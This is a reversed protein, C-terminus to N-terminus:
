LYNPLPRLDHSEIFHPSNEIAKFFSTALEMNTILSCSREVATKRIFAGRTLETRADSKPINIIFDIKGSVIAQAVESKRIDVGAGKETAKWKLIKADFGHSQLYRGTGETAYIPIGLKKLILASGLFRLKDKEKGSSVLVGKKPVRIHSARLALLLAQDFNPALAGVEGTSAMEVGLRPDWGGLRQFSFMAAKVGVHPLEDESFRSFRPTHGLMVDTALKALNLGIVKSVFPFSRSARANCEIVKLHNDKALFQINFPGNLNLGKAIRAAAEKVQRVTEVYLKQAPVVMTADGSHVGANEIHEGVVATLIEGKQAVGDLEIERANEIFESVVVPADKSATVARSLCGDLTVEDYAVQMAAGSLVYSPRVLVPFGIESVFRTLQDKSTAAMWRPQDVKISDLLASFQKRDEAGDITAISHGLIPVDYHSIEKALRNPLQGGMSLVLGALPDFDAIDLIREVTMEDFYLRDSSNYDTSVTEPNCNLIVSQIERERIKESASVACWDFEVSTGIRYSGSGLILITKKQDDRSIKDSHQAGYTFYLYNSPSPYEGATTDIKKVHPTVGLSVRRERIKRSLEEIESSSGEPKQLSAIQWDSFGYRKWKKLIGADAALLQGRAAFESIENEVEVVRRLEFLFWKDISTIQNLHDIPMGRRLADFVAYLRTDTALKLRECLDEDSEQSRISGIGNPDETIMRVAKQVVEPFSRGIAMIEGVSKMTSGLRRSIGPFKPLDWRPIKMTIYDLAPEFFACTVRTVPNKLELLTWGCVVKAAIAAIPYGTAKSALASSRSLRANVEIVYFENSHPSLALQVNCEGLVDLETVIKLSASRLLQYEEDSLSQSPCVVISDGTHIGLPDFNEMNCITICNGQSDRMVEYEIEKWGKLSKEVLVQSSHNFASEVLPLLEEKSEAFGSGLGGLAFAARVIVPFGIKEAAEVAEKLETCAFSPPVPMGISLMKQAFKDRDETMKLVSPASGLNLVGHKELVGRDDLAM